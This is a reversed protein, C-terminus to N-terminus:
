SNAEKDEKEAKMKNIFDKHVYATGASPTKRNLVVDPDIGASRLAAILLANENALDALALYKTEGSHKYEEYQKLFLQHLEGAKDNLEDRKAIAIKIDDESYPDLKFNKNQFSGPNNLFVNYRRREISVENMKHKTIEHAPMKAYIAEVERYAEDIRDQHVKIKELNSKPKRGAKKTDLEPEEANKLEEITRETRRIYRMLRELEGIAPRGPSQSKYKILDEESEADVNNAAAIECYKAYADKYVKFARDRQITLPIGPRGMQKKSDCFQVREELADAQTKNVLEQYKRYSNGVRTKAKFLEGVPKRGVKSM